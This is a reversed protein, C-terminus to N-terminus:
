LVRPRWQSASVIVTSDKHHNNCGCEEILRVMRSGNMLAEVTICRKWQKNCLQVYGQEVYTTRPTVEKM